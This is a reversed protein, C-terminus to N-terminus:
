YAMPALKAQAAEAAAAEAAAAEAAAAEGERERAAAAEAAAAEAAAAEGEKREKEAEALVQRFEQRCARIVRQPEPDSIPIEWTGDGSVLPIRVVLSKNLPLLGGSEIKRFSLLFLEGRDFVYEGHDFVYENYEFQNSFRIGNSVIKKEGDSNVIISLRDGTHSIGVGQGQKDFTTFKISLETDKGDIECNIEVNLDFQEGKIENISRIFNNETIPDIGADSSWTSKSLNGESVIENIKKSLSDSESCGALATLIIISLGIIRM